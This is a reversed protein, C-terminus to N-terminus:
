LIITLDNRAVDLPHTVPFAYEMNKPSSDRKFIRCTRRSTLRGKLSTSSPILMFNMEGMLKDVLEHESSALKNNTVSLYTMSKSKVISEVLRIIGILNIRNGSLVLKNLKGSEFSFSEALSFAGEDDILNSSLDLYELAHIHPLAAALERVGLTSIRAGTLTLQQIITDGKLATALLKIGNDGINIYKLNSHTSLTTITIYSESLKRKEESDKVTATNRNLVGENNDSIELLQDMKVFKLKNIGQLSGQENMFNGGGFIDSTLSHTGKDKKPSEAGNEAATTPSHVSTSTGNFGVPDLLNNLRHLVEKQFEDDQKNESLFSTKNRNSSMVRAKQREVLSVIDAINGRVWSGEGMAKGAPTLSKYNQELTALRRVNDKYAENKATTKAKIAELKKKEELLLVREEEQQIKKLEKPTARKKLRQKDIKEMTAMREKLANIAARESELNATSDNSSTLFKYYEQQALEVINDGENIIIATPDSNIDYSVEGNTENFFYEDGNEDYRRIWYDIPGDVPLPEEDKKNFSLYPTCSTNNNIDRSSDKSQFSKPLETYLCRGMKMLSWAEEEIKRNIVLDPLLKFDTPSSHSLLNRLAGFEINEITQGFKLICLSRATEGVQNAISCDAGLLLLASVSAEKKQKFALHLATDGIYEHILPTWMYDAYGTLQCQENINASKVGQFTKFVAM